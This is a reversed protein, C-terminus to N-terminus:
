MAGSEDQQGEGGAPIETGASKGDLASVPSIAVQDAAGPVARAAVPLGQYEVDFLRGTPQGVLAPANAPSSWVTHHLFDLFTCAQETTTFALDIVVYHPDGVPRCVREHHVGASRRREAFTDYAGKWVEFDSIRHEIHLISM